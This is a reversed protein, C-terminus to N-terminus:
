HAPLRGPTSRVQGVADQFSFSDPIVPPKLGFGQILKSSFGHFASYLLIPYPAWPPDSTQTRIGISLGPRSTLKYVHAQDEGPPTISLKWDIQYGRLLGRVTRTKTSQGTQQNRRTLTRSLVFLSGQPKTHYDVVIVPPHGPRASAFTIMDANLVQRFARQFHMLIVAQRCQVQSDAFTDGVPLIASKNEAKAAVQELTPHKKLLSRYMSNELAKGVSAEPTAEHSAHFGVTVVSSQAKKLSHLLARLAAQLAPDLGKSQSAMTELRKIANDYLGDIMKQASARHHKITRDGLFMRLPKPSQKTKSEKEALRWAADDRWQMIQADHKKPLGRQRYDKLVHDISSRFKAEAFGRQTAKLWSKEHIRRVQDAHRGNPFRELYYDATYHRFSEDDEIVRTYLDEDIIYNGAAPLAAVGLLLGIALGVIANRLRGSFAGQKPGTPEPVDAAIQAGTTKDEQALDNLWRDFQQATEPLYLKRTVTGEPGKLDLRTSRYGRDGIHHYSQAHTITDIRTATVRLPGVEWLYQKDVFAFEGLYARGGRRRLALTMGTLLLISGIVCAGSRIGHFLAMESHRTPHVDPHLLALSGAILLLGFIVMFWSGTRKVPSRAFIGQHGMGRDTWIRQLYNRTKDDLRGPSFSVPTLPAPRSFDDRM